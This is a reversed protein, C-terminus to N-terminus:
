AAKEGYHTLESLANGLATKIGAVTADVEGAIYTLKNTSEQDSTAVAEVKALVALTEGMACLRLALEMERLFKIRNATLEGALRARREEARRGIDTGQHATRRREGERRAERLYGAARELKRLESVQSLLGYISRRLAEMRANM